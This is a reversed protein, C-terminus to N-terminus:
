EAILRTHPRCGGCFLALDNVVRPRGSHVIEVLSPSDALRAEYRVLANGERPSALFTKLVDTAADYAAVAIRDVFDLEARLAHHIAALKEQLSVSENLAKLRDVHSFM